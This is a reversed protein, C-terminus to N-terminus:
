ETGAGDEVIRPRALGRDPRELAEASFCGRRVPHGVRGSAVGVEQLVLDAAAAISANLCVPSAAHSSHAVLIM